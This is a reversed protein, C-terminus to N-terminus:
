IVSELKRLAKVLDIGKGLVPKFLDGTRRFRAVASSIDFDSPSFRRSVERWELPTSVPAGPLPRLSYASALTQGRNNQLYDLYVRGQRKSPSREVSTVSPLRRNGVTALIKGFQKAQDYTYRAGLPIYIHLGSAGSTKCFNPVNLEELLEHVMLATERVRDFSIAEPDLDIALYDPFDLTQIRSNFPHIEICGLNAAYLLSAEDQVILYDLREGKHDVTATKVWDPPPIRGMDKQYFSKGSIGNPYRHLTEPRDKLYPLILRSVARYYNILDAKTYKDKPWYIKSLNTLIVERRNVLLKQEEAGGPFDKPGPNSEPKAEEPEKDPRLGKYIAQRLRGDATWEAFDVEAVLVPRVWTVPMNTKPVPDFPSKKQVLNRLKAHLTKLGAEDFGSGTHGAFKLRGDRYVGLVLSGFKERSGRPATFGTIVVEQSNRTKIKLWSGSRKGPIYESNGDKAMVGELGNKKALRFFAEGRGIAHDSYRIPGQKHLSRRLIDKRAKLPLRRLNRGNLH